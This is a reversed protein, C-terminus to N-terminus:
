FAVSAAYDGYGVTDFDDGWGLTIRPGLGDPFIGKDVGSSVLAIRLDKRGDARTLTQTVRYIEELTSAGILSSGGGGGGGLGPLNELDPRIGQNMDININGPTAQAYPAGFPQLTALLCIILLRVVRLRQANTM